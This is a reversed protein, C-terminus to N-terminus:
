FRQCVRQAEDVEECWHATKRAYLSKRALSSMKMQEHIFILAFVSISYFYNLYFALLLTLLTAMTVNVFM